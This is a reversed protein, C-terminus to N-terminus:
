QAKAIKSIRAKRRSATNKKIVGKKAAKDIASYAKSLADKAEKFKKNAALKQVAKVGEKVVKKTRENISNKRDSVRLAKKANRTIPMHPFVIDSFRKKPM